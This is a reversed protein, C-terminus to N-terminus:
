AKEAFFQTNEHLFIWPSKRHSISDKERNRVLKKAKTGCLDPGAFLRFGGGRRCFLSRGIKRTEFIRPSVPVASGRAYFRGANM